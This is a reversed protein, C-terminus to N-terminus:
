GATAAAIDRASADAGTEALAEARGGAAEDV